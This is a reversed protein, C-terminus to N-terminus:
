RSGAPAPVSRFGDAIAKEAPTGLVNFGRDGPRAPKGDSFTKWWYVGKWWPQGGLARFIAAIARASDEGGAPRKADEAHPATWPARVWPYGAEAFVVPKRIRAALDAVPRAAARVADDLAPDKLKESKSLPDYFDVGIADLVDWFTVRPAGSAWNAAYLLPAGTALRAAAIVNRWNRERAEARTLETGVCFLAAGAAEAVVASHVVYTRYADFWRNWAADDGMAIDGVFAGGGVWLQPKVMATMGLSRADVVARLVAEDTEGRPSRHVFLVSDSGPERVFAYPMVSISDAGLEKLKKLTALSAPATYGGEVTNTMAYSVGRLFGEPLARRDPPRVAQRWAADRWRSLKTALIGEKETLARALAPEGDLRAGADLWAAAAGVTLVPSADENGRVVDELTPDVGAAHTFAAFSKVDRGWWKGYRRAGDALLLVRRELLAPNAAALGASALAPEVLEPEQPTSADVEVVVRGGEVLIDAPRSSGTYLAKTAADPFVRVLFGTKGAYKAAAKEWRAVAAAESSRFEWEVPGRKERRLARTFAEREAIRDRDSSRDIELKEKGTFRGEKTLDGSVVRYGAPRDPTEVLASATLELVAKESGGLVFSEAPKSPDVLLIADGAGSYTRGDFSFASGEFSVPLRALSARLKESPPLTSLHVADFGRPVPTGEPAVQLEVGHGKARETLRELAPVTTIGESLRLAIKRPEPEKAALALFAAAAAALARGPIVARRAAM